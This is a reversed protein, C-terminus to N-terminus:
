KHGGGAIRRERWKGLLRQADVKLPLDIAALLEQRTYGLDDLEHDDYTLLRAVLRNSERRRRWAHLWAGLSAMLRASDPAAPPKITAHQKTKESDFCARDFDSM